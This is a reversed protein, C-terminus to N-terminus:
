RYTMFRIQYDHDRLPTLSGTARDIRYLTSGGDDEIGVGFLTDSDADHTISTLRLSREAGVPTATGNATDLTYLRRGSDAYLVDHTADYTLTQLFPVGPPGVISAAGTATDVTLLRNEDRDYAYLADANPDFALDEVADFGLPGIAVGEGTAVDLAALVRGGGATTFVRERAPDLAMGAVRFFGTHNIGSGRGTLPDLQLLTSAGANHGFVTGTDRAFALAWGRDMGTDGITTATGTAPDIALLRGNGDSNEGGALLRARDADWALGDVHAVGLPGVETVDANTKDIRVLTNAAQDVGYLTGTNPDHALSRITTVGTSAVASATGTAPEITVLQGAVADVGYLVGAAPDWALGAIEDFGLDGIRTGRGTGTDIEILWDGSVDTAYLTGTAPDHAMSGISDFGLAARFAGRGSTPSIDILVDGRNDANSAVTQLAGSTANFTLANPQTYGTPNIFNTTVSGDSKDLERLQNTSRNLGYLSATGPDVALRELFDELPGAVTGAGTAPDIAVLESPESSFTRDHATYLHGTAADYALDRTNFFAIDAIATATRTARDISVLEPDAGTTIGYLVGTGPVRALSALNVADDLPGLVTLAGTVADLTVLERNGSLFGVLLNSDPDHTLGALTRPARLPFGTRREITTSGAAVHGYFHDSEGVIVAFDGAIGNSSGTPTGSGGGNDGGGSGGGCGCLGASVV